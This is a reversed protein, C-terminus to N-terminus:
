IRRGTDSRVAETRAAASRHALGTLARSGSDRAQRNRFPGAWRQDAWIQWIRGACKKKSNQKVIKDSRNLTSTPNFVLYINFHM